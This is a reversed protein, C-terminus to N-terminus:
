RERGDDASLRSRDLATRWGSRIGPDAGPTFVRYADPDAGPPTSWLQATSGALHAAGLASLEARTSRHVPVGSVDAQLQMLTDNASAGGDAVIRAPRGADSMADVVDAVQLAVSDIAARALQAPTTAFTLGDIVGTASDDWWPAALGGFAPVIHVGGNGSTAALEALRDEPLGTIRGLWALTAGSSRINGETALHPRPDAWAITTCVAGATPRDSLRMASSGTGYTVKVTSPDTVGHAYLAAHSDGLVGALPVGALPGVTATDSTDNSAVIEPLVQRPVGFLALLEDDWDATAVNLLQTRAANGTEVAHSGTLRFRLWADVTGLCIRAARAAARDPDVEDLLWSVKPASFMPDLPLGSRAHVLEGHGAQRLRECLAAARRDQWSVLPGVPRGTAREWVVVSERQTSLGLAAVRATPRGALCATVAAHVSDLIEEASQEVRDPRPYSISVPAGAQAVVAGDASVLLCKTSSTGQDVALVLDDAV